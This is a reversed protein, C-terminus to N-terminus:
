NEDALTQVGGERLGITNVFIRLGAISRRMRERHETIQGPPTYETHRSINAPQWNGLNGSIANRDQGSSDDFNRVM